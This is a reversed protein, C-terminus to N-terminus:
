EGKEEVIDWEGKGFRKAIFVAAATALAISLAGLWWALSGAVSTAAAAVQASTSGAGAPIEIEPSAPSEQADLLPEPIPVPDAQRSSAPTPAVPNAAPVPPPAAIPTPMAEGAPAVAVGNPYQLQAEATATFGLTARAIRVSSDSLIVSHPPLRFLSAFSGPGARVIWGSLDLDRGALNHIEVGGDPLARFALKAPEATVIVQDSAAFKDEAIDLMVAYRGPYDFHHLVAPGEAISGDGFNWMFRVHDVNQRDKNYARADFETDAGVIVTRDAGADAFITPTPPAVYSSVPAQSASTQTQQTTNTQSTTSADSTSNSNNGSSSGTLGGTGPTPSSATFTQASVSTRQLSSGNDTAADQPAYTFPGDVNSLDGARIGISEGSSNLDFSSDFLAGTYSSQDVKFIDAKNAIIAYEGVPLTASGQSVNLTHNSGGEFFRYAGLDVSSPGANFVEIWDHDGSSESGPHDYMIESIVVQARALNPVAVLIFAILLGLRRAFGDMPAM